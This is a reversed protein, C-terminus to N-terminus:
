IGFFVNVVLNVGSETMTPVEPFDPQRKDGTVALARLKGDRVLPFIVLPSDIIAQIQGGLVDQVAQAGGRYAVHTLNVKETSQLLKMTLHMPTAIGSTGYNIKGPQAKAYDILERVSKIPVAPNVALVLPSNFASAVIEFDKLPDFGPNKFTVANLALIGSTAF